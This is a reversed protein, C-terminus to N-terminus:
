NWRVVVDYSDSDWDCALWSPAHIILVDNKIEYWYSSNSGAAVSIWGSSILILNYSILLLNYSRILVQISASVPVYSYINIIRIACSDGWQLNDFRKLKSTNSTISDAVVTVQMTDRATLGGNDTVMLEFQYVGVELNPAYKVSPRAYGEYNYMNPSTPGAITKWQYSVITGDPDYSLSGDIRVVNLPKMITQDSGANAFPPTNTVPEKKCGTTVFLILLPVLLNKKM